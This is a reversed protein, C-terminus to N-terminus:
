GDGEGEEVVDWGEATANLLTTLANIFEEHPVLLSPDDRYAQWGKATARALADIKTLAAALAARSLRANAAANHLDEIATLYGLDPDDVSCDAADGLGLREVARGIREVVVGLAAALADRHEAIPLAYTKLALCGGGVAMTVAEREDGSARAVVLGATELRERVETTTPANM